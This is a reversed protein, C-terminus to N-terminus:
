VSLCRWSYVTHPSHLSALCFFYFIMEYGRGLSTNIHSNDDRWGVKLVIGTRYASISELLASYLHSKYVLEVNVRLYQDSVSRHVKYTQFSKMSMKSGCFCLQVNQDIISLYKLSRGCGKLLVPYRPFSSTRIAAYTTQAHWSSSRWLEWVKVNHAPFTGHKQL